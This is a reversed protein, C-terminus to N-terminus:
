DTYDRITERNTAVYTVRVVTGGIAKAEEEAIDLDDEDHNSDFAGDSGYVEYATLEDIGGMIGVGGTTQDTQQATEREM